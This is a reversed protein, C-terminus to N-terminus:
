LIVDDDILQPGHSWLREGIYCIIRQYCEVKCLSIWEMMLSVSCQAVSLDHIFHLLNCIFSSLVSTISIEEFQNDFNWGIGHEIFLKQSTIRMHVM